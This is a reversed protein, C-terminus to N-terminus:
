FNSGVNLIGVNLIGKEVSLSPTRVFGDIIHGHSMM